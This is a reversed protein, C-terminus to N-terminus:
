VTIGNNLHYFLKEKWSADRMEGNELVDRGFGVPAVNTVGSEEDSLLIWISGLFGYKDCKENRDKMRLRLEDAQENNFVTLPCLDAEFAIYSLEPRNVGPRVKVLILLIQDLYRKPHNALDFACFAYQALSCQHRSTFIHLPKGSYVGGTQILSRQNFKCGLRHLPWAAKQCEKSCYLATKCGACKSLTVGKQVRSKLCHSCENRIPGNFTKPENPM